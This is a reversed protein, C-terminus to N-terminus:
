PRIRCRRPWRPCPSLPPPLSFSFAPTCPSSSLSLRTLSSPSSPLEPCPASINADGKQPQDSNPLTHADTSLNLVHGRKEVRCYFDIQRERMKRIRGAAWMVIPSERGRPLCDEPSNAISFRSHTWGRGNNGVLSPPTPGREANESISNRASTDAFRRSREGRTMGPSARRTVPSQMREARQTRYTSHADSRTAM